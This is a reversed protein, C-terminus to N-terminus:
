SDTGTAKALRYRGRVVAQLLCWRVSVIYFNIDISHDLTWFWSKGDEVENGSVEFSQGVNKPM